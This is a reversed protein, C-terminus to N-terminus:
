RIQVRHHKCFDEYGKFHTPWYSSLERLISSGLEYGEFRKVIVSTRKLEYLKKGNWVGQDVIQPIM